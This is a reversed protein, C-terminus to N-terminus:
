TFQKWNERRERHPIWDDNGGNRLWWPFLLLLPLLFHYLFESCTRVPSDLWNSSTRWGGVVCECTGSNHTIVTLLCPNYAIKLRGSHPTLRLFLEWNLRRTSLFFGLHTLKCNFDMALWRVWEGWHVGIFRLCHRRNILSSVCKILVLWNVNRTGILLGNTFRRGGGGGGITWKGRNVMLLGRPSWTFPYDLGNM